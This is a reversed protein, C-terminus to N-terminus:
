SPRPPTPDRQLSACLHRAAHAPELHLRLKAEGVFRVVDRRWLHAGLNQARLHKPHNALIVKEEVDPGGNLQHQEDLDREHRRESCGECDACRPARKQEVDVEEDVSVEQDIDGQIEEDDLCVM